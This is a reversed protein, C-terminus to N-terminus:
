VDRIAGRDTHYDNWDEWPTLDHDDRGPILFETAEREGTGIRHTWSNARYFFKLLDFSNLSFSNLDFPQSLIWGHRSDRFKVTDFPRSFFFTDFPKVTTFSITWGHPMQGERKGNFFFRVKWEHTNKIWQLWPKERRTACYIM